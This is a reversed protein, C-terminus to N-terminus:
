AGSSFRTTREPNFRGKQFSQDGGIEKETIRQQKRWDCEYAFGIRSQFYSTSISSFRTIGLRSQFSIALFFNSRVFGCTFTPVIPCMSWPLVVRVAAMVLTNCFCLGLFWNRDNSEISLAGSSFARPMVM